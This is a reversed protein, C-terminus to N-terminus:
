LSLRINYVIVCLFLAVAESFECLAGYSDGTLGGLRKSLFAAAGYSAAATLLVVVPGGVALCFLSVAGMISSSVIFERKGCNKKFLAGMGDPRASPFYMIAGSIVWRGTAAALIVSFIPYSETLESLFAVKLILVLFLSVAGFTGIRSDKMIALREERDRGGGIGDATDAFGDLHLAGTLVVWLAVVLASTMFPSFFLSLLYSLFACVVGIFFGVLPFFMMSSTFIREDTAKAFPIPIVTLFRM